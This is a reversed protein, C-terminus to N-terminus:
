PVTTAGRYPVSPIKESFNKTLEGRYPVTVSIKTFSKQTIKAKNKAKNERSRSSYCWDGKFFSALIVAIVGIVVPNWSIVSRFTIPTIVVGERLLFLAFILPMGCAM